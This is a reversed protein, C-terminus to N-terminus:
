PILWASPKLGAEAGAPPTASPPVVFHVAGDATAVNAGDFHRCAMQKTWGDRDPRVISEDSEVLLLVNAPDPIASLKVPAGKRQALDINGNLGYSLNDLNWVAPLLPSVRQPDYEQPAHVPCYFARMDPVYPFIAQYWWHWPRVSRDAALPLEGNHDAAYHQLAQALVRLNATCRAEAAKPELGSLAAWATALGLTFVITPLFIRRSM